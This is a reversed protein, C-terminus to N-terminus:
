HAPLQLSARWPLDGPVGQCHYTGSATILTNNSVIGHYVCTRGGPDYRYVSMNGSGADVSIQLTANASETGHAWHADYAGNDRSPDHPTWRGHWAGETEIWVYHLYPVVVAIAPRDAMESPAIRSGISARWPMARRAWDCTFTGTAVNGARNLYGQYQCAGNPQTRTIRVNDGNLVIALQAHERNRRLSWGANYRGDRLSPAVPSWVGQWDGETEYWIRGLQPPASGPTEQLIVPGPDTPQAHAVAIFTLATIASAISTRALRLLIM